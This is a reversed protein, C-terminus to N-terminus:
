PQVFLMTYSRLTFVISTISLRIKSAALHMFLESTCVGHLLGTVRYSVDYVQVTRFTKCFLLYLFVDDCAYMCIRYTYVKKSLMDRTLTM